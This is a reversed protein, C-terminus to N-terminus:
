EITSYDHQVMAMATAVHDEQEQISGHVEEADVDVM